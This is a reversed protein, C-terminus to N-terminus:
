EGQEDHGTPELPESPDHVLFCQLPGEMALKSLSLSPSARLLPPDRSQASWRQGLPPHPIGPCPRRSGSRTTRADELAGLLAVPPDVRTRTEVRIHSRGILIQSPLCLGLIVRGDCRGDERLPHIASVVCSVPSCANLAICKLM